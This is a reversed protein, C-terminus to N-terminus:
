RQLFATNWARECLASIGCAYERQARGRFAGVSHLGVSHMGVSYVGVSRMGVNHAAVDHVGQQAYRHRTCPRKGYSIVDHWSVSHYLFALDNLLTPM